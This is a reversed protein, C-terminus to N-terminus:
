QRWTRSRLLHIGMHICLPTQRTLPSSLGMTTHEASVSMAWLTIWSVYTMCRGLARCARRESVGYERCVPEGRQTEEVPEPTGRAAEKLIANDLFLDAVLRKLQSNDKELEKLRRTQEVRM